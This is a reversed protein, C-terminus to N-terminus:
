EQMNHDGIPNTAFHQWPTGDLRSIIYYLSYSGCNHDDKQNVIKTAQILQIPKKFFKSWERKVRVAWITVEDMPMEGSSNFYEITFEEADDEFCGYIAFWHKGSGRSTDTNLVSGFTRFGEKYKAPWDLRALESKTKEFDIMQFNIHLFHKNTYKKQMQELVEDIEVNSFWNNNERPGSPKFYEAIIAAPNGILSKVKPHNLVCVETDCGLDSKIKELSNDSEDVVFVSKLQDVVEEPACFDNKKDVHFACENNIDSRFEM